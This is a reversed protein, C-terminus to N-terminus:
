CARAPLGIPPSFPNPCVLAVYAAITSLTSSETPRIRSASSLSASRSEVAITKVLSLPPRRGIVSLRGRRAPLPDAQSPPTRTGNMTEHGPRVGGPVVLSSGTIVISM